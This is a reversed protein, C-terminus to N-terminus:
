LKDGHRKQQLQQVHRGQLPLDTDYLLDDLAVGVGTKDHLIILVQKFMSCYRKLAQIQATYAIKQMRWLAVVRRTKIDIATFVTFDVQRAWDVGIVVECESVDGM